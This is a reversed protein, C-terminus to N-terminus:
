SRAGSALVQRDIAGFDYRAPRDSAGFGVPQIQVTRYQSALLQAVPFDVPHKSNKILVIVPGDGAIRYAVLAGDVDVSRTQLSPQGPKEQRPTM